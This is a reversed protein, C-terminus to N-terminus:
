TVRKRGRGKLKHLTVFVACHNDPVICLNKHINLLELNLLTGMVDKGQLRQSSKETGEPQSGCAEFEEATQPLYSAGRGSFFFVFHYIVRHILCPGFFISM